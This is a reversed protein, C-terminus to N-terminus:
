LIKKELVFVANKFDKPNKVEVVHFGCKNIYFHHNRHSFAPTEAKWLITNPYESEIFDWIIKGVGKNELYSDVFLLELININTSKNIRLIVAGIIRNDKSIKYAVSSNDLSFRCLLDGNDYGTPGGSKQGLHIKTDKDFANKMIPILVNIDQKQMREFSLDKYIKKM